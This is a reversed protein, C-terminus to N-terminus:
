RRAAGSVTLPKTGAKSNLDAMLDSVNHFSRRRGKRAEWMAAATVANPAKIEFPLAKEAAVRTLLVRVADSVSLGVTALAKTAQQKVRKNIRVQVMETTAVTVEFRASLGFSARM